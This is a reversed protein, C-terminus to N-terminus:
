SNIETIRNLDFLYFVTPYIKGFEVFCEEHEDLVGGGKECATRSQKNDKLTCTVIKTCGQKKLEKAILYCFMRGLGRHNFKPHVYVAMLEAYGRQKYYDYHSLPVGDALGIIKDNVTAV